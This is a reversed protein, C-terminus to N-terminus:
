ALFLFAILCCFFIVIDIFIIELSKSNSARASREGQIIYHARGKKGIAEKYRMM